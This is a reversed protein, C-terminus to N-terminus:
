HNPISNMGARKLLCANCECLNRLHEWTYIGTEHGDGWSFKLAYGGITEIGKLVYRGPTDRTPDPPVYTRFLVTEGKCGACPCGDRLTSMSFSSDHGDNWTMALETKGTQLVKTPIPTTM